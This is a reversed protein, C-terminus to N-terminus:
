IDSITPPAPFAGESVKRDVFSLTAPTVSELNNITVRELGNTEPPRSIGEYKPDNFKQRFMTVVKPPILPSTESLRDYENRCFKLLDNPSIRETRPLSMEVKLFRHLKAYSLSAIRHGECRRTFGFYNNITTLISTLIIVAGVAVSSYEANGFLASSGVSISANIVGLIIVPLDIWVTRFSYLEEARKHMWSYAHSIEAIEAFYEELKTHYYVIKSSTAETTM